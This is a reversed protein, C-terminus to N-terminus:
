VPGDGAWPQGAPGAAAVSRGLQQARPQPLESGAMGWAALAAMGAQRRSHPYPTRRLVM